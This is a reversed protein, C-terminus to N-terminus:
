ATSAAMPNFRNDVNKKPPGAPRPMPHEVAEQYNKQQQLVEAQHQQLQLDLATQAEALLKRYVDLLNAADEEILTKSNKCLESFHVGWEDFLLKNEDSWGRTVDISAPEAPPKDKSSLTPGASNTRRRKPDNASKAKAKAM